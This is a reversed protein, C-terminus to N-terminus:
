VRSKGVESRFYAVLQERRHVVAGGGSEGVRAREEIANPAQGEFAHEAIGKVATVLVEGPPIEDPIGTRTKGHRGFILLHACRRLRIAPGCVVRSRACQIFMATLRFGTSTATIPSPAAPPTATNGSARAPRLTAPM